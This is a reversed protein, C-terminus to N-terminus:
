EKARWNGPRSDEDWSDLTPDYTREDSDFYDDPEYVNGKRRCPGGCQECYDDDLWRSFLSRIGAKLRRLGEKGAKYIAAWNYLVLWVATATAVAAGINLAERFAPNM